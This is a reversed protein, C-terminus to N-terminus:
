NSLFSLSLNPSWLSFPVGILKESFKKAFETFDKLNGPQTHNVWLKLLSTHCYEDTQKSFHLALKSWLVNILFSNFSRNILHLFFNCIGKLALDSRLNWSNKIFIWIVGLGDSAVYKRLLRPNLFKSFFRSFQWSRM